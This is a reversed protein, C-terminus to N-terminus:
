NASSLIALSDAAVEALGSASVFSTCYPILLQRPPALHCPSHSLPDTCPWTCRLPKLEGCGVKAQGPLACSLSYRPLVAPRSSSPPCHPDFFPEFCHVFSSRRVFSCRRFRVFFIAEQHAAQAASERGPAAASSGSPRGARQSSLRYAAARCSRRCSGAPPRIRIRPRM